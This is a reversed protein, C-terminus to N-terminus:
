FRLTAPLTGDNKDKRIRNIIATVSLGGYHSYIQNIVDTAMRNANVQTQILDWVIKRRSYKCKCRGREERTFDKAAKRGGIGEMWEQWLLQITRPSPHLTASSNANAVQQEVPVVPLGQNRRAQANANRILNVPNRDIRQGLRRLSSGQSRVEVKLAEFSAQLNNIAGISRQQGALVSMMVADSNGTPRRTTPTVVWPAGHDVQTNQANNQSNQGDVDMPEVSDMFVQADRGNVVQLVKAIPNAGDRLTAIPEYAQVIRSWLGHPMQLRNRADDFCLWLLARGFIAGVHPGYVETINPTVNATIWNNNISPEAIRYHCVGGVCLEVAVKADVWDLQIDDYDDSIRKRSKWRGRYDKDDKSIGMMRVWTSALKRISHSGVPGSEDDDDMSQPDMGLAVLAKRLVEYVKNKIRDGAKDEDEHECFAFVHPRQGMGVVSGLSVELWLGVNLLACFDPDMSGLVHQWPADREETVNKSWALRTKLCKDSHADHVSLNVRQWRSCDDVRGIMHFQFVMLAPVGFKSVIDSGDGTNRLEALISRFEHEKLPRRAQSKKGQKRVEFKAVKKIMQNVQISKTPNGVKSIENWPIHRNPLCGSLAKKWYYLTNSRTNMPRDRETPQGTGYARFNFYKVVDDPTLQQLRDLTIEHNPTYVFGDLYSLLARLTPWYLRNTGDMTLVFALDKCVLFIFLWDAPKPEASGSTWPAHTACPSYVEESFPTMKYQKPLQLHLKSRKVRIVSEYYM